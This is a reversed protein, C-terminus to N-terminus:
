DPEFVTTVNDSGSPYDTVVDAGSPYVDPASSDDSQSFYLVPTFNQPSPCISSTIM